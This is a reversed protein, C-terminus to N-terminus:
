EERFARAFSDRLPTILYEIATRRGIIIMVDAPMGPRLELNGVRELESHGIVVHAIYYPTGTRQDSLSDAAVHEVEGVLMPTTRQKFATLRVQAMLGNHVSDIDTPKIQDRFVPCIAQSQIQNCMNVFGVPMKMLGVVQAEVM